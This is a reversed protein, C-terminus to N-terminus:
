RIFGSLHGHVLKGTQLPIFSEWLAVSVFFKCPPLPPKENSSEVTSLSTEDM